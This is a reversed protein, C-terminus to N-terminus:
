QRVPHTSKHRLCYDMVFVMTFALLAQYSRLRYATLAALIWWMICSLLITILPVHMFPHPDIFRYLKIGFESHVRMYACPRSIFFYDILGALCLAVSLGYFGFKIDRWKRLTRSPDPWKGDMSKPASKADSVLAKQDQNVPSSPSPLFSPPFLRDLIHYGVAFSSSTVTSHLLYSLCTLHRVTRHAFQYPEPYMVLLSPGLARLINDYVLGILMFILLFYPLPLPSLKKILQWTSLGIAAQQLAYLGHALQFILQYDM